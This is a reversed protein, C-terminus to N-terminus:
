FVCVFDAGYVDADQCEQTDACGKHECADNTCSWHADDFLDAPIDEEVCDVPVACSMFCVAPEMYLACAVDDDPYADECELNNNCGTFVCLDNQCVWNDEDYLISGPSACQTVSDCPLTCGHPEVNTNCAINEMEPFISLCEAADQCGLFVCHDDECAWNNGDKTQDADAPVCDDPDDCSRMCTGWGADTDTDSDTDSDTDADGSGDDDDGCGLPLAALCFALM